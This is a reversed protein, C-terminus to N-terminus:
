RVMLPLFTKQQYVLGDQLGLATIEEAFGNFANLPAQGQTGLWAASSRGAVGIGGNRVAIGMGIDNEYSGYFTHWQYIGNKDLKLVAFDAKGTFQHLPEQGEPGSWSADSSGGIYVGSRDDVVIGNGNNFTPSGYFTHWKYEGLDDLELVFIEYEGNHAQLPAQGEPGYWAGNSVGTLYVGNAGDVAIGRGDDDASSGYFTHWQYDGSANLKLVSIDRYGSYAHLPAQGDPGNWSALSWGTAYIGDRGDVALSIYGTDLSSSGYFTHWQYEGSTSLKLVTIDDSGSYAHLPAQGDPGDWSAGSSGAIYVGGDGDLGIGSFGGYNDSAPGYFTHWQYVGSTDLKIILFNRGSSYANLPAQGQPGDWSGDSEGSIYVGGLEDVTIGFGSDVAASGLFTHWLYAGSADLKLVPLDFSGSYPNLPAQGQPGDWTSTSWGTVYAAGSADLAIAFGEDDNPSGYFTHWNYDGEFIPAKATSKSVFSVPNIFLTFILVCALIIRPRYPSM